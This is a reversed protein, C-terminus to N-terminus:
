PHEHAGIDHAGVPIPNGFFDRTGMSTVLGLAVLDAGANIAPSGGQLTFSTTPFGVGRYTPDNLAPDAYLSHMDKGTGAQWASLSDFCLSGLKFSPNGAGSFWYLNHDLNQQTADAEISVLNPGTSYILNNYINTNQIAEGGKTSTIFIAYPGTAGPPNWYITNNYIYTDQVAGGKKATLYIEPDEGRRGDNSCINYRVVSDTTVDDSAAGYIALCYADNDHGYNYQVVNRHSYFDIDYAGGDGEPSHSEYVENFQVTCDDCDWTWLGNPNHNQRTVMIGSNYVVNHEVLGNNVSAILIGDSQVDYVTSNRVTFNTSRAAPLNCCRGGSGIGRFADHAVVNDILVGHVSHNNYQGVLVAYDDDNLGVHHVYLNTLTFGYLDAGVTGDVYLGKGASNVIELSDFTWHNQDKITVVPAVAGHGDIIPRAGAGYASVTIPNGGVGSGKPWLQGMCTTARRFLIEDGALYTRGNVADLNNWPTEQSGDGNAAASCDVYYSPGSYQAQAPFPSPSAFPQPSPTSAPEVAEGSPRCSAMFASLLAAELLAIILPRPGTRGPKQMM